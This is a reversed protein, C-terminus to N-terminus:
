LFLKNSVYKLYPQVKLYNNLLYWHAQKLSKDDLHIIKEKGLPRWGTAFINLQKELHSNWEDNWEHRNFRTEIGRLYMSCFTLSENIIYAEVISGEPRAKNHVYQKYMGLARKFPYIWRSQVPGALMAEYSLHIVLYVMVDFFASLFMRELKCLIM